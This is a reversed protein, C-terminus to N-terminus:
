AEKSRRHIGSSGSGLTAREGTDGPGRVRAIRAGSVNPGAGDGMMVGDGVDAAGIKDIPRVVGSVPGIQLDVQPERPGKAM